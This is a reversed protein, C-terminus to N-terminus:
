AARRSRQRGCAYPWVLRLGEHAAVIPLSADMPECRAGCGTKLMLTSM